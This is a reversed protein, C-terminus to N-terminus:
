RVHCRNIEVNAAAMATCMSSVHHPSIACAYRCVDSQPRAIKNHQKTHQCNHRAARVQGCGCRWPMWPHGLGCCTASLRRGAALCFHHAPWCCGPWCTCCWSMPKFHLGQTHVPQTQLCKIYQSSNAATNVATSSCTTCGSVGDRVCPVHIVPTKSWWHGPVLSDHQKGTTQSRMTSGLAATTHSPKQQSWSISLEQLLACCRNESYVVFVSARLRQQQQWYTLSHM